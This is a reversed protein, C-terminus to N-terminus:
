SAPRIPIQLSLLGGRKPLRRILQMKENDSFIGFGDTTIITADVIQQLKIKDYIGEVIIAEKLKIITFV